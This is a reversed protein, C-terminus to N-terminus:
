TRIGTAGELGLVCRPHRLHWGAFPPIDLTGAAGDAGVGGAVVGAEGFLYRMLYTETGDGAEAGTVMEVGDKLVPTKPAM